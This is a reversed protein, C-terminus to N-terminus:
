ESNQNKSKTIEPKDSNHKNNKYSYRININGGSSDTKPKDNNNDFRYGCHQCYTSQPSIESGCKVCVPPQSEKEIRKIEKQVFTEIERRVMGNVVLLCLIYVLFLAIVGILLSIMISSNTIFMSIFVVALVLILAPVMDIKYVLKKEHFLITVSFSLFGFVKDFSFNFSNRTKDNLSFKRDFFDRLQFFLSQSFKFDPYEFSTFSTTYEFPFSM